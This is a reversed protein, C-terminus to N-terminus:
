FDSGSLSLRGVSPDQRVGTPPRCIGGRPSGACRDRRRGQVAHFPTARYEVRHRGSDRGDDRERNKGLAPEARGVLTVAHEVIRDDSFDTDAFLSIM